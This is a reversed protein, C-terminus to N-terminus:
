DMLNESLVICDTAFDAEGDVSEKITEVESLFRPGQGYRLRM